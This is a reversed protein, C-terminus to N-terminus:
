PLWHQKDEPRAQDQDRPAELGSVPSRPRPRPLLPRPSPRSIVDQIMEENPRYKV